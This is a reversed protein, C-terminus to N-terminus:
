GLRVLKFSSSSTPSNTGMCLGTCSIHMPLPLNLGVLLLIVRGDRTNTHSTHPQQFTDAYSKTHDYHQLPIRREKYTAKTDQESAKWWSSIINVKKQGWITTEILSGNTDAAAQPKPLHLALGNKFLPTPSSAKCVLTCFVGKALM